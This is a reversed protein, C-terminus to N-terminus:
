KFLSKATDQVSYQLRLVIIVVGHQTYCLKTVDLRYEEWVLYVM